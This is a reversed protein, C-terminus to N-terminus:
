CRSATRTVPNATAPGVAEPHSTVISSMVAAGISGGITRINANMGSAVGTQERPVAAVISTRCRRSRWASASARYRWRWCLDGVEARARRGAHVFTAISIVGGAVSCRRARRVADLAPGASMGFLFMCADVAAPVARVRHHQRRLRLRGVAADAPVRAPVRVGRVHRRRVAAGRPQDDVGGPDRMMRMDILPHASRPSRRRVWAVASSSPSRRAPRDGAGLGLGVIPGESVRSCCRWWGRRSCCPPRGASGERPACRRSPCSSKRPSRPSACLHDDPDLVALPLRLADVIPGALVIGLGGGAAALAAIIGVAGAVKERPFEDRIIGFSLPLVGGGVGQIVRAVIMVASRAPWRPSCRASPSRPSRSSWCGSRATM